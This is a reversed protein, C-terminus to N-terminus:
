AKGWSIFESGIKKGNFWTQVKGTDPSTKSLRKLIEEKAKARVNGAYVVQPEYKESMGGCTCHDLIGVYTEM